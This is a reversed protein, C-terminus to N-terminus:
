LGAGAENRQSYICSEFWKEFKETTRSPLLGRLLLLLLLSFAEPLPAVQKGRNRM